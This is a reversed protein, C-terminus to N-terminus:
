PTRSHREEADSVRSRSAPFGRGRLERVMRPGGYVGKFEAHIAQILALM